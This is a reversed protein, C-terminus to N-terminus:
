SGSAAIAKVLPELLVGLATCYESLFIRVFILSTAGSKLKVWASEAM